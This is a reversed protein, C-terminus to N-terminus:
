RGSISIRTVIRNHQKVLLVQNSLAGRGGAAIARGRIDFLQVAGAVGGRPAVLRSSRKVGIAEVDIPVEYQQYRKYSLLTSIAPSTQGQMNLSKLAFTGQGVMQPNEYVFYRQMVTDIAQGNLLVITGLADNSFRELPWGLLVGRGEIDHRVVGKPSLVQPAAYQRNTCVVYGYGFNSKDASDVVIASVTYVGVQLPKSLPLTFHGQGGRLSATIDIERPAPVAFPASLQGLALKIQKIGQSQSPTVTITLATTTSDVRPPTVTLVVDIPYQVPPYLVMPEGKVFNDSLRNLYCELNDYQTTDGPDEQARYVQTLEKGNHSARYPHLGHDIEWWDPMGDNDTDLEPLPAVTWDFLHGDNAPRDWLPTSDLTDAEIYGMLRRDMADRPFAGQNGQAYQPLDLAAHYTPAPYPHRAERMDVDSPVVFNTPAKFKNCCNILERDKYGPWKSLLNNHLYISPAPGTGKPVFLETAFLSYTFYPSCRHYNEIINIKQQYPVYFTPSNEDRRLFIHDECDWLLNNAMEWHFTANMCDEVYCNFLPLRGGIRSFLNHHITFSDTPWAKSSNIILMGGRNYHTGITEALILNQLTIRKCEGIEVAEDGARGISIHDFIADQFWRLRMGDDSMGPAGWTAKHSPQVYGAPLNYQQGDPRSRLHRVIVNLSGVFPKGDMFVETPGSCNTNPVFGRMIIGGPSSQGALTYGGYGRHWGNVMGLGSCKFLIYRKYDCNILAHKLSGEGTGNLDTVYYVRGGRAGSAHAGFGEAGPFSKAQLAPVWMGGLICLVAALVYKM